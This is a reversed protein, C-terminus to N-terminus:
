LCNADTPDICSLWDGSFIAFDRFDVYCDHNLDGAKYTTCVCGAAVTVITRSSVGDYSVVLPCRSSPSTIKGAAIYGNILTRRDTELTLQSTGSIKIVAGDNIDFIATGLIEMTGSIINITANGRIYNDWWVGTMKGGNTINVTAPGPYLTTANGGIRWGESRAISGAGDINLVGAGNEGMFTEGPGWIPFGILGGAVVNLEGSIHMWQCVGQAMTGNITCANVGSQNIIANGNVDPTMTPVVGTSWNAATGWKGDATTNLWDAAVSVKTAMSLVVAVCIVYSMVVRCM